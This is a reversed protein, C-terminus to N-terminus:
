RTVEAGLFLEDYVGLNGGPLPASDLGFDAIRAALVGVQFFDPFDDHERALVDLADFTNELGNREISQALLKLDERLADKDLADMKAVVADPMTARLQSNKWAGPKKALFKVTSAADISETRNKGFQRQHTAIICGDTDYIEVSHARIAAIVERRSFAPSTSYVHHTDLTVYGYGDAKHHEYRVCDFPKQPLPLSAQIDERLLDHISVKKRYHERSELELCREFLEENYKEISQIEPVPVFLNKRHFAVKREVSGKEHGSEVNCFRLEFGYHARFRSFLETEVVTEKIRKGVGTANDFVLLHPVCGVYEFTDQLGQCVCEAAEGGFLQTFGGNSHPYSDTLYHKRVIQSSIIFDAQGFDVQMSGPDWVLDLPEDVPRVTNMQQKRLKVYRQVPGYSGTYGLETQLRDCIRKATHRQKHFVNKDAELWEDITVKFPDLISPSVTAVPMPPSFDNETLYKRVTKRDISLTRAIASKSDGRRYM